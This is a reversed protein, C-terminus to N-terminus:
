LIFKKMVEYAVQPKYQPIEHGGQNIVAFIFQKKGEGKYTSIYGAPQKNINLQKWIKCEKINLTEIWYQSPLTGCVSDNTGSMILVKLNEVEKDNLMKDLLPVLSNYTDKSRYKVIYSCHKWHIRKNKINLANKVDTRNLYKETLKDLCPIFKKKLTNNNKNHFTILADQQHSVCLPYNLAYPNHKGATREIKYGLETCYRSPKYVKLHPKHLNCKKKTYKDWLKKPIKQYGWLTQIQGLQGSMYNIYPNGIMIGKLNLENNNIKNYELVASTLLPIYHGGYSESTLYMNNKKFQPYKDFFNLIFNLNDITSLKDSSLYGNKYKSTSFGVGAPQEMFVINAFKTWTWINYKLKGNERPRYPGFEDFLGILGSCGPGGNTWFMIPANKPNKECEIFIYYIDKKEDLNIYGAYTNSPLKEDFDPLNYVYDNNIMIIYLFM